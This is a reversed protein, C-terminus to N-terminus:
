KWLTKEMIWCLGNILLYTGVYGVVFGILFQTIDAM